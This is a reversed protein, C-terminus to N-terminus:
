RCIGKKPVKQTLYYQKVDCQEGFRNKRKVMVSGIPYGLKKLESIRSSLSLIGLQEIAQFTTIDKNGNLYKVLRADQPSM